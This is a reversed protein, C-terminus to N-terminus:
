VPRCGERGFVPVVQERERHHQHADVDVHPYTTGLESTAQNRQAFVLEDGRGVADVDEAVLEEAERDGTGHGAEGAAHEREPLLLERVLVERRDGAEVERDGEDDHDDDTAQSVTATDDTSRDEERQDTGDARQELRQRVVGAPSGEVAVVLEVDGVDDARGQQKLRHHQVRAAKALDDPREGAPEGPVLEGEMVWVAFGPGASQLAATDTSSTRSRVIRKPPRTAISPSLRDTSSHSITPRIPGFPAPLVVANLQM